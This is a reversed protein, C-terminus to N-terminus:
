VEDAHEAFNTFKKMNILKVRFKFIHILNKLKVSEGVGPPGM